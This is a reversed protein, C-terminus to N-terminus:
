LVADASTQSEAGAEQFRDIMCRFGGVAGQCHACQRRQETRDDPGAGAGGCSGPPKGGRPGGTTREPKVYLHVVRM